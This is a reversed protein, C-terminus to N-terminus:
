TDLPKTSVGLDPEESIQRKLTASYLRRIREVQTKADQLRKVFISQRIQELIDNLDKLGMLTRTQMKLRENMEMKKEATTEARANELVEKVKPKMEKLLSRIEWHIETPEENGHGKGDWNPMRVIIESWAAKLRTAFTGNVKMLAELVNIAPWDLLSKTSAERGRAAQRLNKAIRWKEYEQQMQQISPVAPREQLPKGFPTVVETIVHRIYKSVRWNSRLKIIDGIECSDKHDHVRLFYPAM